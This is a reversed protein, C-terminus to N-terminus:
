KYRVIFDLAATVLYRIAESRCLQRMDSFAEIRDMETPPMSITFVVNRGGKKHVKLHNLLGMNTKFSRSCEPCEFSKSPPTWGDGNDPGNTLKATRHGPEPESM